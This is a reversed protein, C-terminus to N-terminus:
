QMLRRVVRKLEKRDIIRLVTVTREDIRYLLRHDGVRLRYLPFKFGRLKKKTPGMPFPDGRLLLMSELIDSRDKEALADLDKVAPRTLQLAFDTVQSRLLDSTIRLPSWM